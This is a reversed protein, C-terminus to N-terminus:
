KFILHQVFYFIYTNTDCKINYFSSFFAHSCCFEIKYDENDLIFKGYQIMTNM